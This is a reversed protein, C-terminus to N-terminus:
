SGTYGGNTYPETPLQHVENHTEPPQFDRRRGIRPFALLAVGMMVLVVYRRNM